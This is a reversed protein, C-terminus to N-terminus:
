CRTRPPSPSRAARAARASSSRSTPCASRHPVRRDFARDGRGPRARRRRRGSLRRRHRRALDGAPRLPRRAGDAAGGQPLGGAAGHRFQAPPPERHRRGEGPRHRLGSRGRVPRARRRDGRGRRFQPRGGAAHIRRHPGQSLRLLAAQGAAPRGPDEALADPAAYLEALAKESKAELKAIEEAIAPSDGKEAVARLEDIRADIEAVPTEFSLYTRM